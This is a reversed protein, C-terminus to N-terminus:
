CVDDKREFVATAEETEGQTNQIIKENFLVLNPTSNEGCRAHLASFVSPVKASQTLKLRKM